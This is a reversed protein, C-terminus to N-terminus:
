FLKLDMALEVESKHQKTKVTTGRTAEHQRQRLWAFNHQIDQIFPSPKSKPMYISLVEQHCTQYLNPNSKTECNFSTWVPIAFFFFPDVSSHLLFLFPLFFSPSLYCFRFFQCFNLWNNILGSNEEGRTQKLPFDALKVESEEQM